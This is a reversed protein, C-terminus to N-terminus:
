SSRCCRSISASSRSLSYVTHLCKVAFDISQTPDERVERLIGTADLEIDLKAIYSRDHLFQAVEIMRVAHLGADHHPDIRACRGGQGHDVLAKELLCEEIQHEIRHLGHLGAFIGLILPFEDQPDLVLICADGNLDHIGPRSDRPLHEILDEM